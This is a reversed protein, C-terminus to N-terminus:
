ARSFERNGLVYAYLSQIRSESFDKSAEEGEGVMGRSQLVERRVIRSSPCKTGEKQDLKWQERVLVTLDEPTLFPLATNEPAIGVGACFSPFSPRHSAGDQHKKGSDGQTGKWDDYMYSHDWTVGEATDLAALFNPNTKRGQSPAQGERTDSRIRGILCVFCSGRNEEPGGVHVSLAASVHLAETCM